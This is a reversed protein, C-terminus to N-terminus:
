PREAQFTTPIITTWGRLYTLIIVRESWLQISGPEAIPHFNLRAISTERPRKRQSYLNKPDRTIIRWRHSSPLLM